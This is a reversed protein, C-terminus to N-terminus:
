PLPEQYISSEDTDKSTYGLIRPLRYLRPSVNYHEHDIYQLEPAVVKVVPFGIEPRTLNVVSILPDSLVQKVKGICLGLASTLDQLPYSPLDSLGKRTGSKLYMCEYIKKFRPDFVGVDKRYQRREEPSMEWFEKLYFGRGQVAETLARIFATEPDLHAGYGHTLFPGWPHADQVLLVGVTAIGIDTTFDKIRVEIGKSQLSRILRSCRPSSISEADIDPACLRNRLFIYTGDREVLELLGQLIAEEFCNGAALGNTGQNAFLAEKPVPYPFHVFTAPILVPSRRILDYGRRWELSLDDTLEVHERHAIESDSILKRPDVAGDRLERYSGRVLPTDAFVHASLREVAECFASARAQEETFGKGWQIFPKIRKWPGLCYVRSWLVPLGVNDRHDARLLKISAREAPMAADLCALTEAATAARWGGERYRVGGAERPQRGSCGNGDDLKRFEELDCEAVPAFGRLDPRGRLKVAM